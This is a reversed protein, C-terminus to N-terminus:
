HINSCNIFYVLYCNSSFMFLYSMVHKETDPNLLNLKFTFGYMLILKPSKLPNISMYFDSIFACPLKCIDILLLYLLLSIFKLKKHIYTSFVISSPQIHLLVVYPYM